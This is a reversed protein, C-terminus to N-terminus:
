KWIRGFSPSKPNLIQPNVGLSKPSPIAMFSYSSLEKIIDFTGKLERRSRSMITQIENYLKELQKYKGPGLKVMGTIEEVSLGMRAGAITALINETGMSLYKTPFHVKMDFDIKKMQKRAHNIDTDIKNILNPQMVQSLKLQGLPAQTQLQTKQIEHDRQKQNEKAQFDQQSKAQVIPGSGLTNGSANISGGSSGGAIEQATLGESKLDKYRNKNNRRTRYDGLFQDAVGTALKGSTTELKENIKGLFQGAREKFPKPGTPKTLPELPPRKDTLNGSGAGLAPATEPTESKGKILQSGIGVAASAIQGWVM